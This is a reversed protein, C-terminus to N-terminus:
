RRTKMKFFDSQAMKELEKLTRVSPALQDVHGMAQFGKGSKKEGYTIKGDYENTPVDFTSKM